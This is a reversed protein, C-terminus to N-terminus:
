ASPNDSATPNQADMQQKQYPMWTAYGPSHGYKPFHKDHCDGTEPDHLECSSVLEHTGFHNVTDLRVTGDGNVLIVTADFPQTPDVVNSLTRAWYWVKRGITPKHTSQM